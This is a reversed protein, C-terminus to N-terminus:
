KVALKSESIGFFEKFKSIILYLFIAIILNGIIKMIMLNVSFNISFDALFNTLLWNLITGGAVLALAILFSGTRQAIFFREKLFSAMFSILIFSFANIGVKGFVAIDLILGGILAWLWIDEFKKRSSWLIILVLVVDPVIKGSTLGPFFSIQLVVALFIIIALKIKQGM